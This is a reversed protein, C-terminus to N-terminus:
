SSINQILVSIHIFELETNIIQITVPLNGIERLRMTRMQLCPINIITAERTKKTTFRLHSLVLMPGSM